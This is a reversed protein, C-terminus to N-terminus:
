RGEWFGKADACPGCYCIGGADKVFGRKGCENCRVRDRDMEHVISWGVDLLTKVKNGPM